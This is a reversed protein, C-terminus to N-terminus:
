YYRYFIILHLLAIILVITQIDIWILTQFSFCKYELFMDWIVHFSFVWGLLILSRSFFIWFSSFQLFRNWTLHQQFMEHYLSWFLKRPFVYHVNSQLRDLQLNHSCLWHQPEHWARTVRMTAARSIERCSFPKCWSRWQAGTGPLFWIHEMRNSEM